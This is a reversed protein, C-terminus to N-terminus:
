GRVESIQARNEKYVLLWYNAIIQLVGSIFIISLVQYVTQHFLWFLLGHLIVGGILIYICEYDAKALHYNLLVNGLAFPTVCISFWKLLSTMTAIPYQTGYLIKIVLGPMIFCVAIGIICLLGSFLLSKQILHLPSEKKAHTHAVKPFMVTIIAAPLTWFASGVVSGAAYVGRWDTLYRSVVFIDLSAFLEKGYFYLLVPIAYLYIGKLQIQTEQHEPRKIYKSLPIISLISGLIVVVLSAGVAGAVQYGCYVFIIGTILRVSADSFINLGLMPFKQLGQLGGRLVPLVWGFAFLLALIFMPMVSDLQINLIHLIINRGFFLVVGGICGIEITYVLATRLLVRIKDQENKASYQALYRTITLQIVSCPVALITLVKLLTEFVGYNYPGLGRTMVVTFLFNLGMGVMSIAVFLSGQQILKDAKQM